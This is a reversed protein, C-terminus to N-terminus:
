ASAQEKNLKDVYYKLEWKLIDVVIKALRWDIAECSKHQSVLRARRQMLDARLIRLKEIKMAM